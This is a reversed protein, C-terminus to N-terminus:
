RNYDLVVLQTDRTLMSKSISLRPQAIVEKHGMEKLFADVPELEMSTAETKYHMPIVVEPDLMNIVEAAVPANITTLGGVPVLLVDINSLEETQRSTLKHGLDGLHCVRIDDLEILFVTNKGAKEGNVNDHYTTIGTVFVGGVEYEGPGSVVRPKGDVAETYNHHEHQHSVTVINGSPRQLRYKDFDHYPDTIVTAQKGKVVFCSHGLWTIDM